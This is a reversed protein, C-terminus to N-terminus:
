CVGELIPTDQMEPKRDEMHMAAFLGWAAHALHDEDRFGLLYDYIHAITHSLLNSIPIGKEWNRDGYKKSGEDYVEALRWMGIPSILDYRTGAEERQAGSEFTHM